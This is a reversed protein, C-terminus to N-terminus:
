DRIIPFNTQFYSNFIVPFTYVPSISEFVMNNAASPLYYANFIDQWLDGVEIRYHENHPAGGRQGHDSQIVIVPPIGSRELLKDVLDIVKKNTFIYQNLYYKKERINFFNEPEIEGGNEDFVFPYHPCVIHSYVFIPGKEESLKSLKEFIFLTRDRFYQGYDWNDIIIDVLFGLMTTQLFVMSFDNILMEPYGFVVDSNNFLAQSNMPFIFIKYGVQKFIRAVKSNRIMKYPENGRRFYEMNLSSAISKESAKYKTKSKKAIYFGRKELQAVFKHNDYNYLKKISELGAYEDLIIYYVDPLINKNIKIKEAQDERLLVVSKTEQAHLQSIKFVTINIINILILCLAMINLFGTAQNFNRTSRFVFRFIVVWIGLFVPIVILYKVEGVGLGVSLYSLQDCIHGFSFFLFLFVSTVIGAKAKNKLISLFIGWLLLSFILSFVLPLFIQSLRTEKINHSYLFLVPFISFLFTYAPIQLFGDPQNISSDKKDM